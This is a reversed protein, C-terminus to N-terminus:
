PWQKACAESSPSSATASAAADWSCLKGSPGLAEFEDFNFDLLSFFRFFLPPLFLHVGLIDPPVGKPRTRSVVAPYLSLCGAAAAATKRKRKTRTSGMLLFLVALVMRLTMMLM